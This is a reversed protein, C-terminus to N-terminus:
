AGIMGLDFPLGLARHEFQRCNVALSRVAHGTMMPLPLLGSGINEFEQGSSL